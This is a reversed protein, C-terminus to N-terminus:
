DKRAIKYDDCFFSPKLAWIVQRRWKAENKEKNEREVRMAEFSKAIKDELNDNQDDLM